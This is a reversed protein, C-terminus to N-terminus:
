LPGARHLRHPQPRIRAARRGRSRGMQPAQFRRLSLAAQPRRPPPAPPPATPTTDSGSSSRPFTGNAASSISTAIASSTAAPSTARPSPARTTAAAPSRRPPPGPTPPPPADRGRPQRALHGPGQHNRGSTKKTGENLAKVPKGKWLSSKDVLILGRQSSTTPNYTKLAM